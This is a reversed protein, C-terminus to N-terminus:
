YQYDDDGWDDGEYNGVGWKSSSATTAPVPEDVSVGDTDKKGGGGSFLPAPVMAAGSPGVADGEPIVQMAAAGVAVGTVAGAAAGATMHQSPSRGVMRQEGQSWSPAQGQQPPQAGYTQMKGPPNTMPMQPTRGPHSGGTSVRRPLSQMTSPAPPPLQTVPSSTGQPMQDYPGQMPAPGPGAM